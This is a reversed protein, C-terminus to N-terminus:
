TEVEVLKKKTKIVIIEEGTQKYICPVELGTGYKRPGVVECEITGGQSLFSYIIRSINRPVHGIINGGKNVSVAHSDYPNSPECAVAVNEGAVPRWFSKSIHHGRIVSHLFFIADRSSM